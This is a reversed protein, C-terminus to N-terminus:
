TDRYVIYQRITSTPLRTLRTQFSPLLPDPNLTERTALKITWCVSAYLGVFVHLVSKLAIDGSNKNVCIKRNRLLSWKPFHKWIMNRYMIPYYKKWLSGLVWVWGLGSGWSQRRHSYSILRKQLQSPSHTHGQFFTTPRDYPQVSRASIVYSM